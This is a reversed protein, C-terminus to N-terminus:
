FVVEAVVIALAVEQADAVFPGLDVVVLFGFLPHFRELSAVHRAEDLDGRIPIEVVEWRHDTSGAGELDLGYLGLM